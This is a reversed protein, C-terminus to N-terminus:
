EFARIKENAESRRPKRRLRDARLSSSCMGESKVPWLPGPRSALNAWQVPTRMAAFCRCSASGDRRRHPPNTGSTKPMATLFTRDAGRWFTLGDQNAPPSSGWAPQVPHLPPLPRHRGTMLGGQRTASELQRGIAAIAASPAHEGIVGLGDRREALQPRAPRRRLGPRLPRPRSRRGTM